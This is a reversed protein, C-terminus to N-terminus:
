EGTAKAIVKRAAAHEIANHHAIHLALLERVTALLDPAAAILRANQPAVSEAILHGGYYSVEDSGKIGPVPYDGVVIAFKGGISARWPGATHATM